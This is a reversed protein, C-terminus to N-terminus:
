EKEDTDAARSKHTFSRMAERIMDTAEDRDLDADPGAIIERLLAEQADDEAVTVKLAERGGESLASDISLSVADMISEALESDQFLRDSITYILVCFGHINEHKGQIASALLYGHTFGTLTMSFNGSETTISTYNRERRKEHYFIEVKFGSYKFSFEPKNKVLFKRPM